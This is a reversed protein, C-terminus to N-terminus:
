APNKLSALWRSFFERHSEKYGVIGVLMDDRLGAIIVGRYPDGYALSCKEDFPLDEKDVSITDDIVDEESAWETFKDDGPDRTVFLSLSSDNLSYGVSFVDRLFEWGLFSESFIMESGPDRDELPFLAFTEPLDTTGSIMNELAGALDKVIAMAPGLRDFSVIHVLYKGKVFDLSNETVFGDVGLSVNGPGPPKISSYLGYADDATDFRYIDITIENIDTQYTATAVKEFGYSHYLEAGGDIYKYLSDGEFIMVDTSRKAGIEDFEDLLWSEPDVGLGSKDSGGGCSLVMLALAAIGMLIKRYDNMVGETLKIKM